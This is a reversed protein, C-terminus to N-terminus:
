GYGQGRALFFSFTLRLHLPFPITKWFLSLPHTMDTFFAQLSPADIVVLSEFSLHM